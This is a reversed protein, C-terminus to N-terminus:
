HHDFLVAYAVAIADVAHQDLCNLDVQLVSMIETKRRIAERVLEKKDVGDIGAGVVKKVARPEILIFPVNYNYMHTENRVAMIVDRLTGYASPMKPSYFADESTVACPKYYELLYRFASTLRYIRNIPSEEDGPYLDQYVPLKIPTLTFAMVSLLRRTRYDIDIISVGANVLGPDFGMVRYTKFHEPVQLSM